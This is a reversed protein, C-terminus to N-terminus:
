NELKFQYKIDVHKCRQRLVPNRAFAIAGQNDEYNKPQMYHFEDFGQLMQVLHICEPITAALAMCDTECASCAVTLQEKTRWSILPADPNLSVCYGTTSCRDSVDDALNADSFAQLGLQGNDSKQYSNRM